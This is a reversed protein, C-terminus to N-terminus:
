SKKQLKWSLQSNSDEASKEKLYEIPTIYMAVCSFSANTDAWNIKIPM